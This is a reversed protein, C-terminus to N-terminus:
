LRASAADPDPPSTNRGVAQPATLTGSIQFWPPDSRPNPEIRMGLRRMVAISAANDYETGAVIRGLGLAAFMWDSLRKAAATALGRGRWAPRLAWFLGVEVSLGANPDGGQSPLRGFPALRPVIGILGAFTGSEDCIVRDGYPPQHLAALQADNCIAWDLWAAREARTQEPGLGLTNWGIEEHLRCCDDLDAPRLPRIGVGEGELHPVSM